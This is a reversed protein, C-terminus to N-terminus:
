TRDAFFCLTCMLPSPNARACLGLIGTISTFFNRSVVPLAKPYHPLTSCKSAYHLTTLLYTLGFSNLKFSVLHKCEPGSLFLSLPVDVHRPSTWCPSPELPFAVYLLFDSLSPVAKALVISLQPPSVSSIVASVQM